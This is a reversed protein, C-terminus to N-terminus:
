SRLIREQRSFYSRLTPPFRYLHAGIYAGLSSAIQWWPSYWAWKIKQTWTSQLFLDSTQMFVWDRWVQRPIARFQRLWTMETSYSQPNFQLKMAYTHDVTQRFQEAVNYDHSHIVVSEPEFVIKYGCRLVEDAWVADEAFNVRRFPTQQWVERRIASSTNSFFIYHFKNKEFETLSAPMEKVLRSAGGSQWVTTLQRVMSPTSNPRPIHRSFVGAVRPDMELAAILSALWNPNAPKADQSLYVIFRSTEAAERGGLNRTEGHNFEAAPIRILRVPYAKLLEVSQDESGSDIAIVEYDVSIQQTFIAELTEVLYPSANKLLLVISVDIM